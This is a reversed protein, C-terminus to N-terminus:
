LDPRIIRARVGEGSVDPQTGSFDSWAVVFGDLTAAVSPNTQDSQTTTSVIFPKGTPAGDVVIRGYVDCSGPGESCVHWVVMLTGDPRSAIGFAKNSAFDSGTDAAILIPQGLRMGVPSVRQIEIRAPGVGTVTSWRVAVAFDSGWTAVRVYDIEESGNRTLLLKEDAFLEGLDNGTRIHVEGDVIWAYLVRQDLAAVHSRHASDTTASVTLPLSFPSCDSRVIMTRVVQVQSSNLQQWTVVATQTNSLWTATVVDAAETMITVPETPIGDYDVGRCAIGKGTGTIDTFDWFALTRDILGVLAPSATSAMAVTNLQFQGVTAAFTTYVPIGNGDFRRGYVNCNSCEDRFAVMWTDFGATAALQLGVAEFDDTLFQSGAFVNNVQLEAGQLMVKGSEADAALEVTGRGVLFSGVDHADVAIEIPGTGHLQLDYTFPFEADSIAVTDSVTLEGQTWSILITDIRQAAPWRGIELVITTTSGDDGPTTTIRSCGVLICLAALWRM